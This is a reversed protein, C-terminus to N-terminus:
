FIGMVSMRLCSVRSVVWLSFFVRILVRSLRCGVSGLKVVVSIVLCLLFKVCVEICFFMCLWM